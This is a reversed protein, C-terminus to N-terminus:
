GTSLPLPPSEGQQQLLLAGVRASNSHRGGHYGCSPDTCIFAHYPINKARTQKMGRGQALHESCVQSTYPFVVQTERYQPLAGQAHLDAAWETFCEFLGKQLPMYTIETPLQGRKGRTTLGQIGDWSAYAAGTRYLGYLFIMLAQRKFHVMVRQRRRHLCSLQEKWLGRQKPTGKGLDLKRQINPIEMTRIRELRDRVAKFAEMLPTLDLEQAPTALALMYEGLPNLDSGLYTGQPFTLAEYRRDLAKLFQGRHQFASPDTATLIVDVVIKLTPGQPVNLRLDQVQAGRELCERIKSTAFLRFWFTGKRNGTLRNGVLQNPAYIPLGLWIPRGAKLLETADANSLYDKVVRQQKTTTGNEEIVVEKIKTQNPYAQREVVYKNFLLNLPLHANKRAKGQYPRTVCQDPTFASQLQDTASPYIRAFTLALIGRVATFLRTIRAKKMPALQSFLRAVASTFRNGPLYHQFMPHFAKWHKLLLNVKKLFTLTNSRATSGPPLTQLNEQVRQLLTKAGQEFPRGSVDTAHAGIRKQLPRPYPPVRRKLQQYPDRLREKLVGSLDLAPIPLLHLLHKRQLRGIVKQEDESGAYKLCHAALDVMLATVPEIQLPTPLFSDIKRRWGVLTNRVWGFEVGWATALYKGLPTPVSYFSALGLVHESFDPAGNGSPFLLHRVFEVKARMARWVEMMTTMQALAMQDLNSGTGLYISAAKYPYRELNHKAMRSHTAAVQILETRTTPLQDIHTAAFQNLHVAIMKLSRNAQFQFDHLSIESPLPNAPDRFTPLDSGTFDPAALRANQAKQQAIAAQVERLAKHLLAPPRSHYRQFHREYTALVTAPAGHLTAYRKFAKFGDEVIAPFPGALSPARTHQRVTFVADHWKLLFRLVQQERTLATFPALLSEPM